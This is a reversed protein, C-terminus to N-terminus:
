RPSLGEQAVIPLVQQLLVNEVKSNGAFSAAEEIMMLTLGRGYPGAKKWLPTKLEAFKM